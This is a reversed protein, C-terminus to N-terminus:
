AGSGPLAAPLVVSTSRSLEVGDEEVEYIFRDGRYYCDTCLVVKGKTDVRSTRIRVLASLPACKLLAAMADNAYSLVIQVYSRRLKLRGQELILKLIKDKEDAGPPIKDYLRRAVMVRLYSYPEGGTSQVKEVIAYQAYQGAGPPIFYAPLTSSFTRSLVRITGDDPLNLRDNIAKLLSPSQAAPRVDACVFTGRGRTSEILGEDALQQLAKRITVPAVAYERALEPITPLQEEPGWDGQHIRIRL